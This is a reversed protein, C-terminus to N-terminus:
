LPLVGAENIGDEGNQASCGLSLSILSILHYGIETPFARVEKSDRRRPITPGPDRLGSARPENGQFQYSAQIIGM